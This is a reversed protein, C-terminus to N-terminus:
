DNRIEGFILQNLYLTGAQNVVIFFSDVFSTLNMFRVPIQLIEPENQIEFPKGFVFSDWKPFDQILYNDVINLYKFDSVYFSEEIKKNQISTAIQELREVQVATLISLDLPYFNELHPFVSKANNSAFDSPLNIPQYFFQDITLQNTDTPILADPTLEETWDLASAKQSVEYKITDVSEIYVIPEVPKQCGFM